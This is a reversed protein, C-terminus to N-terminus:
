AGASMAEHDDNTAAEILQLLTEVPHAGSLAVRRNAVFFPVGTVGIDRAAIEDARVHDAFEDGALVASVRRGDLGAEAGLRQLSEVDDIAKGESFHASYLRELVAAQLAPGGQALGLAVLRHADFSNARLQKDVDIHVGDPRGMVAPREAIERAGALDTGYRQALWALVTEGTSHAAKPDLQFAHYTVTVEAPHASEAIALELRRKGLYCWPCVVDAWVDIEVTHDDPRSNTPREVSM